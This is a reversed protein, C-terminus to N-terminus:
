TSISFIETRRIGEKFLPRWSGNAVIRHVLPQRRPHVRNAFDTEVVTPYLTLAVAAPLVLRPSANTQVLLVTVQLTAVIPLARATPGCNKLLPASEMEVAIKTVPDQHKKQARVSTTAAASLFPFMSVFAQPAPTLPALKATM